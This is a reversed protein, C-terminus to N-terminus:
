GESRRREGGSRPGSRCRESLLPGPLARHAEHDVNYVCPPMGPHIYGMVCVPLCVQTTSTCNYVCPAYGPLIYVTTCLSAYGPPIYVPTCGPLCVRTTYTCNECGTLCVRTTYVGRLVWGPLCVRTLIERRVCGQSAYGPIYRERCVRPPMGPNYVGREVVRPPM